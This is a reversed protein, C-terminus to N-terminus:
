RPGTAPRPRTTCWGPWSRSGAAGLLAAVVARHLGRRRLGSLSQEVARRALEHRFVLGGPRVRLIGTDEAEALADLRDGLLAEALEFDVPTPVVSLQEVADLCRASLRRLRALVADAM